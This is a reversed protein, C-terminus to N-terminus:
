NKWKKEFILWSKFILSDNPERFAKLNYYYYFKDLLFLRKGKHSKSPNLKNYNYYVMHLEENNISWKFTGNKSKDFHIEGGFIDKYYELDVKYKNSVSITLQPRFNKQEISYKNEKNRYYFNITGDADFFGSFWANNFNLSLPDIVKINLINCIKNFQVFRTSNRINGNVANVLTIMGQKNTLRYRIAKAGSRLKVSGGFKNQILKLMKEDELPVTIELATYKKKNILFCGDGDILGALWQNFKQNKDYYGTSGPTFYYYINNNNISPTISFNNLNEIYFNSLNLNLKIQQIKNKIYKFFILIHARITESIGIIINLSLFSLYLNTIQQNSEKYYYKVIKPINLYVSIFNTKNYIIKIIYKVYIFLIHKHGAFGPFNYMIIWLCSVNWCITCIPWEQGLTNPSYFVFLSFILLFVFVTILDKFIFYNHMPIRDLNGTIGIPNSSGHVHLAIFHM